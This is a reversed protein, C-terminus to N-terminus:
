DPRSTEITACLGRGGLAVRVSGCKGSVVRKRAQAAALAAKVDFARAFVAEFMAATLRRTNTNYRPCHYSDILVRGGPLRHEPASRYSPDSSCVDSSWDSIRM